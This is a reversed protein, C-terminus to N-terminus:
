LETIRAKDKKGKCEDGVEYVDDNDQLDSFRHIVRYKM